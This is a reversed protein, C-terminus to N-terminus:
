FEVQISEKNNRIMEENIQDKAATYETFKEPGILKALATLYKQNIEKERMSQDDSINYSFKNGYKKRLYNHFEKYAQLKEKENQNKMEIYMAYKDNGIVKQVKQLWSKELADYVEFNQDKLERVKNNANRATNESNSNIKFSPPAELDNVVKTATEKIALKERPQNMEKFYVRGTFFLLLIVILIIIKKM